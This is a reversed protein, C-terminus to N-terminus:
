CHIRQKQLNRMSKKELRLVSLTWLAILIGTILLLILGTSHISPANSKRSAILEDQLNGAEITFAMAPTYWGVELQEEAEVIREKVTRLLQMSDTPKVAGLKEYNAKAELMLQHARIYSSLSYLGFAVDGGYRPEFGVDPWWSWIMKMYREGRQVMKLAILNLDVEFTKEFWTRNSREMLGFDRDTAETYRKVGRREVETFNPQYFQAYPGWWSSVVTKVSGLAQLKVTEELEFRM